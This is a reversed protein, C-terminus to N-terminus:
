FGNYDEGAFRYALRLLEADEILGRDRLGAFAAIIASAAQALEGNDRATIDAGSVQLQLTRRYM